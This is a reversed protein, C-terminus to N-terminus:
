ALEYYEFSEAFTKIDRYLINLSLLAERSEKPIVLGSKNWYSIEKEMASRIFNLSCPFIDYDREIKDEMNGSLKGFAYYLLVRGEASYLLEAHLSLSGKLQDLTQLSTESM